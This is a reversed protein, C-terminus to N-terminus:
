FWHHSVMQPSAAGTRMTTANRDCPCHQQWNTALDDHTERNPPTSPRWARNASRFWAVEGPAALFVLREVWRDFDAEALLENLKRYFPHGASRPLASAPLFLAEQQQRRKGMAM